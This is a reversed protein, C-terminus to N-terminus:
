WQECYEKIFGSPCSDIIQKISKGARDKYEPEIEALPILVFNRNYMEPHPIKINETEIETGDWDVIDLDITRPGWRVSDTRGIIKEIEKLRNLLVSADDDSNLMCVANLFNQQNKYGFPESEYIASKKEVVGIKAMENVASVLYKIRDGINSGLGIYYNL